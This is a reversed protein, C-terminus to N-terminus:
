MDDSLSSDLYPVGDRCITTPQGDFSTECSRRRSGLSSGLDLVPLHGEETHLESPPGHLLIKGLSSGTAVTVCKGMNMILM